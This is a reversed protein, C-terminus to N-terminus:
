YFFEILKFINKNGNHYTLNMDINLGRSEITICLGNKTNNAVWEDRPVIKNIETTLSSKSFLKGFMSDLKNLLDKQSKSYTPKIIIYEEM